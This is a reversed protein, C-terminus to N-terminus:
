MGKLQAVFEPFLRNLPHNDLSPLRREEAFVATAAFANAMAVAPFIRPAGAMPGAFIMDHYMCAALAELGADAASWGKFGWMEKAKKWMYSGNSPASATPFGWKEKIMRNAVSCFATAPGNMVSTDVFISEFRAGVKEIANLLKQTGSIRGSPMQDAPDFAVLLVHKVGIAAIERIETEIDPEWVTLSNYFMRDLLSKEACYAAGDLKPKMKWADVCFPMPSVSTVFDIYRKFEDVSNAVVDAMGPVGTEMSLKDQALLLERALKEDFGEKRKGEFVKDGKQFISSCVVSPHEGPRGGFTVGGVTCTKQPKDIKFM